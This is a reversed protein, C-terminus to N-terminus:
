VGLTDRAQELAVKWKYEWVDAYEQVANLLRRADYDLFVDFYNVEIIAKENDPDDERPLPVGLRDLAVAAVCHPEGDVVYKCIVDNDREPFDRVVGELTALMTKQSIKQPM